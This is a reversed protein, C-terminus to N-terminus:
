LHREILGKTQLRLFMDKGPVMHKKALATTSIRKEEQDTM